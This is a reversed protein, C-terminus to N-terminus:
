NGKMQNLFAKVAEGQDEQSRIVAKTGLPQLAQELKPRIRTTPDNMVPLIILGKFNAVGAKGKNDILDDAGGDSLIVGYVPLDKNNSCEEIIKSLITSYLTGSTPSSAANLIQAEVTARVAKADKPQGTYILDASTAFRYVRVQATGRQKAVIGQLLQCYKMRIQDKNQPTNPLGFQYGSNDVGFVLVHPPAKKGCGTTAFTATLILLIAVALSFKALNKKKM